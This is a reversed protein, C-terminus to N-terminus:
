KRKKQMKARRAEQERAAIDALRRKRFAMGAIVAAVGIIVIGLAGYYVQAPPSTQTPQPSIVVPVVTTVPVSTTPMVSTTPATTPVTTTVTTTVQAGPIAQAYVSLVITQRIPIYSISDLVVYYVYGGTSQLEVPQNVSLTLSRGNVTVGATTPTIFNEVVMFGAGKISLPEYNSQTFNSIVYGTQNGSTFPAVTPLEGGGAGSGGGGGGGGGSSPTTVPTSFLGVVPDAPVIFTITCAATDSTYTLPTWVGSILKYPATNSGCPIGMTVSFSAGTLPNATTSNVVSFNLVVLKTFTTTGAPTTTYNATVNNIIVNAEADNASIVTFLVNANTFNFVAPVESYLNVMANSSTGLLMPNVRITNYTNFATSPYSTGLDSLQVDFTLLGLDMPTYPVFTVNGGGTGSIGNSAIVNGKYLLNVTFPGFGTNAPLTATYTIQQGINIASNSPTVTLAPAPNVVIQGSSGTANYSIAGAFGTGLMGVALLAAFLLL